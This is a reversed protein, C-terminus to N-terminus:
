KTRNAIEEYAINVTKEPDVNRWIKILIGKPDVLFTDRAPLGLLNLPFKQNKDSGLAKALENKTDALLPFKLGYKEIFKKHSAISDRSIGYVQANLKEFMALNATFSCAEKTCGSTDDKPYFYLVTWKNQLDAESVHKGETSELRFKPISMGELIQNAM